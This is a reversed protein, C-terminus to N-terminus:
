KEKAGESPNEWNAGPWEPKLYGGGELLRALEKYVDTSRAGMGASSLGAVIWVGPRIWPLLRRFGEKLVRRGRNRDHSKGQRKGVARGIRVVGDEAKLFLLRM